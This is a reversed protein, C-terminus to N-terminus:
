SELQLIKKLPLFVLTECFVSNVASLSDSIKPPLCAYCKMCLWKLDDSYIQHSCSFFVKPMFLITSDSVGYNCKVLLTFIHSVMPVVM